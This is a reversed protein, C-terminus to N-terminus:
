SREYTGSFRMLPIGESELSAQAAILGESETWSLTLVPNDGPRILQLFKVNAATRLSVPAGVRSQLTDTIMNLTCVGPVIPNGPFHGAFVKHGAEYSVTAKVAGAVSEIIELSYIETKM